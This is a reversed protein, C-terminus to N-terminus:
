MMEPPQEAPPKGASAIVDDIRLIMVAVESAAQIAQSKVKTPEIVREELM